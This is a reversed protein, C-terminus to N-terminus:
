KLLMIKQKATKGEAELVVFYIGSASLGSNWNLSYFGAPQYGAVLQVVERGLLDFIRLKVNVDASLDYSFTTSANFPNPYAPHLKFHEPILGGGFNIRNLHWDVAGGELIELDGSYQFLEGSSISKGTLCVILLRHSGSFIECGESLYESEISFDGRVELQLGAIEGDTTLQVTSDDSTLQCDTIPNMRALDGGLIISVATVIDLIDLMGDSNLDGLFFQYDDASQNGLVVAVMFVVDLIDLSHDSNMDGPVELTNEYATKLTGIDITWFDGDVFWKEPKIIVFDGEQWPYLPAWPNENVDDGNMDIWEVPDVGAEIESTAQWIMGEQQVFDGISYEVLGDWQPYETEQLDPYYQFSLNYINEAHPEIELFTSVTDRFLRLEENTEWFCDGYGPVQTPNPWDCDEDASISCIGKDVHALGVKKGTTINTIKVPLLTKFPTDCGSPSIKVLATDLGPVGLDIRYDYVPRMDFNSQTNIELELEIQALLEPNNSSLQDIVMFDDEPINEMFNTIQMRMGDIIVTSNNDIDTNDSFPIPFGNLIYDPIFINEDMLQAGPLNQYYELSDQPIEQVPILNGTLPQYDVTDQIAYVFLAPNEAAYGEFSDWGYDAQVEIKIWDYVTELLNNWQTIEFVIDGTGVMDPAPILWGKMNESFFDGTEHPFVRVFNRDSASDGRPSELSKYGNPSAWHDPNSSSWTTDPTYTGDGNDIWTISFDSEIGMDYATLRYLYETNNEVDYDAYSYGLGTSNGLNYQPALPDPGSISIGRYTNETFCFANEYICHYFDQEENLDFQALPRWGLLNGQWDYIADEPAGWTEGGDTSKYLKYGEFDSYGTILDHTDEASADWSLYVAGSDVVAYLEPVSPASYGSHHFDEMLVAMRANHILDDRNEGFVVAFSFDATEGVALDFPGSSMIMVCDLGEPEELYFSELPIGEVSDFHPNLSEDLDTAPDNTHFFWEKEDVSLNTTDGAMLKYQIEEKNEACTGGGGCFPGFNSEREVVGPRNYWDFWHWDTMKLKEGPLIDPIGDQDLDVPSTARPSDLMQVGVYGTEGVANSAGDVDYIMAMSVGHTQGNIEYEQITFDMMDDDNTHIGMNGTLTSWLVDADFYFGLYMDKYNFGDGQNLKTGDPMIMGEGCSDADCWDGSENRVQMKFFLVDDVLGEDYSMVQSRVKLGLPYGMYSPLEPIYDYSNALFAWRDDFEMYVDNDSIFKGPIEQWCHDNEYSGDCGPLSEDYTEKWWGPWFPSGSEATPWTQPLIGHALLQQEANPNVFTYDYFLEGNTYDLNHTNERANTTAQWDTDYAQDDRTLWSESVTSGFYVYNDDITWEDEDPGYDWEHYGSVYEVFAPRMAWPYIIGISIGQEESLYANTLSPDAYSPLSLFFAEEVPDFCWQNISTFEDSTDIEEGIIGDENLNEFLIGSFAPEGSDSLWESALGSSIWINVVTDPEIVFSSHIGWDQYYASYRVGPVGAMFSLNPIYTYDMWAGSPGEGWSIPLGYNSVASTTNGATVYGVARDQMPWNPFPYDGINREIDEFPNHTIPETGFFFSPILCLIIVLIKKM